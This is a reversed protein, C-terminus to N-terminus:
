SVVPARPITAAQLAISCAPLDGIRSGILHICKKLKGLGEPHVVDQLKSLKLCFNTGSASFYHKQRTSHPWHTPSVVTRGDSLRNELCHPIRLM